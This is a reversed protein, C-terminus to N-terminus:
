LQVLANLIEKALKGDRMLMADRPLYLFVKMGSKSTESPKLSELAASPWPTATAPQGGISRDGLLPASRGIANDGVVELCNDRSLSGQM